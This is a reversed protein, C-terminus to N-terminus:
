QGLYARKVDQNHLLDQGKGSLGIRGKELVCAIHCLKLSKYVNQETLLIPLGRERNILEVIQFIHSVIRPALGLSPEDLILLEPDSMLGRAIALMQQQGGSLSGAKDELKPELDPFLEMVHKFNAARKPRARKCFAGLEINERVSMMPFVHRGEPIMIIGMNVIDHPRSRDIRKGRFLVEGGQSRLLGCITKLLTTKGSGNSGLLTVIEGTEIQFSIDTLITIDGYGAFLNKVQLM